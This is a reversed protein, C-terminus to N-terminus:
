LGEMVSVKKLYDREDEIAGIIEFCVGTHKKMAELMNFISSMNKTSMKTLFMNMNVEDKFSALSLLFKAVIPSSGTQHKVIKLLDNLEEM